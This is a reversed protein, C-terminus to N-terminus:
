ASALEANRGRVNNLQSELFSRSRVARYEYTSPSLRKQTLVLYGEHADKMVRDALADLHKIWVAQGEAVAPWNTIDRDFQLDGVHYVLTDGTRADKFWDYYEALAGAGAELETRKGM